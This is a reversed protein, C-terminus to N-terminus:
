VFCVGAGVWMGWGVPTWGLITGGCAIRLSAGGIITGAVAWAGNGSEAESAMYGCGCAVQQLNVDQKEVNNQNIGQMFAISFIMAIALGFIAKKNKKM